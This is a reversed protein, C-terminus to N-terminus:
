ARVTEWMPKGNAPNLTQSQLSRTVDFGYSFWLVSDALHKEVLDVLHREVPHDMLHNSTPTAIPLVRFETAHYIIHGSIRGRIPARGTIVVIYEAVCVLILALVHLVGGSESTSLTLLGM